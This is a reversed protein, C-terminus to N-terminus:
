TGGGGLNPGVNPSKHQGGDHEDYWPDHDEDRVLARLRQLREKAWGLGNVIHRM